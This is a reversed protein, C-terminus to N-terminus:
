SFLNERQSLGLDILNKVEDKVRKVNVSVHADTMTEEEFHIPKGFNLIVKTPWVVPIVIPFSPIGLRKGISKLDALSVISEECGVVGVPVVPTRHKMALHIFGKGFKQLQYRKSFVKSSGRIGEPFVIIAQENELMAKCNAPDGIVAGIRNLATGVFPVTPLFREVMAKPIREGHPNTMMAYGILSGDIPLQGSHNAIVLLRGNPPLNELGHAEVRFYREYLFQVFKSARNVGKLHTGWPDYGYTGPQFGEDNM